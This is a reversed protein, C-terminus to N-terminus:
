GALVEMGKSNLWAPVQAPKDLGDAIMAAVLQAAQWPTARRLAMSLTGTTRGTSDAYLVGYALSKVTFNDSQQDFNHLQQEAGGILKRKSRYSAPISTLVTTATIM